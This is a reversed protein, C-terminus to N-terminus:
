CRGEWFCPTHPRPASMYGEKREKLRPKEGKSVTPNIKDAESSSTLANSMLNEQEMDCQVATEMATSFFMRSVCFQQQTWEILVIIPMQVTAPSTDSNIPAVKAVGTSTDKHGRCLGRQVCVQPPIVTNAETRELWSTGSPCHLDTYFVHLREMQMATQGVNLRM